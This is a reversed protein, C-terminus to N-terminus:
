SNVLIEYQLLEQTNRSKELRDWSVSNYLEEKRGSTIKSM